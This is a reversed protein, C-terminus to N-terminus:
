SCFHGLMGTQPFINNAWFMPINQLYFLYSRWEQRPPTNAAVWPSILAVSFLIALVSYYIPWIRLARRAYFSRFYNTASKTELLIGTILFGSLAFFLDVGWQGFYMLTLFPKTGPTVAM